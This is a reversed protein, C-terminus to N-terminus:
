QLISFCLQDTADNMIYGDSVSANVHSAPRSRGSKRCRQLHFSEKAAQEPYTYVTEGDSITIILVSKLFSSFTRSPLREKGDPWEESTKAPIVNKDNNKAPIVPAHSKPCDKGPRVNELLLNALSNMVSLGM